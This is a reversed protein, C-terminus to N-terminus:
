TGKGNVLGTKFDDNKFYLDNEGFDGSINIDRLLDTFTGTMMQDNEFKGKFIFNEYQFVGENDERKFDNIKGEYICGDPYTIKGRSLVGNKWVGHYKTLDENLDSPNKTITLTGTGHYEGM